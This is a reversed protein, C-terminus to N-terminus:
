AAAEAAPASRGSRGRRRGEKALRAESDAVYAALTAVKNLTNRSAVSRGRAFDDYDHWSAPMKPDKQRYYDYFGDWLEHDEYRRQKKRPPPAELHLFQEVPKSYDPKLDRWPPAAPIKLGQEKLRRNARRVAEPLHKPGEASINNAECFTVYDTRGLRTDFHLFAEILVDERRAGLKFSPADGMGALTLAKKWDGGVYHKIQDHNPLRLGMERAQRESAAVLKSRERRYQDEAISEQGLRRAVLRLAYIVEPDRLKREPEGLRQHVSRKLDTRPNTAVKAFESWSMKFRRAIVRGEPADGYGLEVRAKDFRSLSLEDPQEADLYEVVEEVLPFLADIEYYTKEAM